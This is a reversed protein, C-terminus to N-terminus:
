KETGRPIEPNQPSPGALRPWVADSRLSRRLSWTRTVCRRRQTQTPPDSRLISTSTSSRKRSARTALATLDARIEELSGVLPAREEGTLVKVVGRCVFRLEDPDRGADVAPTRVIAVSEDIRNLDARSSSIWGAAVRGARRLAREATGGLLLPPHPKQVPRPEVRSRPVRYFSARMSWSKTRGSRGYAAFTTRREHGEAHRPCASPRSSKPCGGSAWVPTWGDM